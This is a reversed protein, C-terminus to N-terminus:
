VVGASQRVAIAYRLHSRSIPSVKPVAHFPEGDKRFPLLPPALTSPHLPLKSRGPTSPPLRRMSATTLSILPRSPRLSSSHGAGRPPALETNNVTM